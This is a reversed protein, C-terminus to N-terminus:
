GGIFEEFRNCRERIRFDLPQRDGKNQAIIRSTLSEASCMIMFSSQSGGVEPNMGEQGFSVSSVM